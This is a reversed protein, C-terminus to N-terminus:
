VLWIEEGFKDTPYTELNEESELQNFNSMMLIEAGTGSQIGYYTKPRIEFVKGPSLDYMEPELNENICIIRVLGKLVYIKIREFHRYNLGYRTRPHIKEIYIREANFDRPTLDIM